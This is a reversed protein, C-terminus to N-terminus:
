DGSVVPEALSDFAALVAELTTATGTSDFAIYQVVEM